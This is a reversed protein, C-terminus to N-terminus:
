FRSCRGISVRPSVSLKASCPPMICNVRPSFRVPKLTLRLLALCAPSFIAAGSKSIAVMMPAGLYVPLATAKRLLVVIVCFSLRM